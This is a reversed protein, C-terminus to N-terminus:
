KGSPPIGRLTSRLAALSEEVIGAQLSSCCKFSGTSLATDLADAWTATYKRHRISLPQSRGNLDVQVASADGLRFRFTADGFGHDSITINAEGDFRFQVTTRVDDVNLANYLVADHHHMWVTLDTIAALHSLTRKHAQYFPHRDRRMTLLRIMLDSGVRALLDGEDVGILLHRVALNFHELIDPDPRAEFLYQLLATLLTQHGVFSAASRVAALLVFDLREDESPDGRLVADLTTRLSAPIEM